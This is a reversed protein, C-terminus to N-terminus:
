TSECASRQQTNYVSLECEVDLSKEVPKICMRVKKRSTNRLLFIKRTLFYLM